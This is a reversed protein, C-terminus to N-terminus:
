VQEGVTDGVVEGYTDVEGVVVGDNTGVEFAGVMPGVVLM